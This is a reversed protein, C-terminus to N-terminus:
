RQDVSTPWAKQLEKGSISSSIRNAGHTSLASQVVLQSVEYICISIMGKELIIPIVQVLLHMQLHQIM